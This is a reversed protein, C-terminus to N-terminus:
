AYTLVYLVHHLDLFLVTYRKRFEIIEMRRRKPTPSQDAKGM